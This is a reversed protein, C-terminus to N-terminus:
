REVCTATARPCQRRPKRPNGGRIKAPNSWDAADPWFVISADGISWSLLRGGAEPAIRALSAGDTLELIDQNQFSPM